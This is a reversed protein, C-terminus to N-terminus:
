VESFGAKIAQHLANMIVKAQRETPYLLRGDHWSKLVGRATDTIGPAMGSNYFALLKEPTKTGSLEMVKIQNNIGSDIREIREGINRKQRDEMQSVISDMVPPKALQNCIREMSTWCSPKKCFTGINTESAPPRLIRGHVVQAISSIYDVLLQELDQDQWIKDWNLTMNEDRLKKSLVSITYAISQARYGEYWLSASILKGVRKFLIVQSVTKQFLYENCDPDGEEYLNSVKEAFKAFCLQAGRAVEHPSLDWALSAKAISIKDFVQDLPHEVLFKKRDSNSMYMQDNLYEGKVREYFWKSSALAGRRAPVRLRQSIEKIRKHFYTNSFFDSTNVKNQTNAYESIKSVYATYNDKDHIVSLKIQVFVESLDFGDKKAKFITSMTQGGNVIQLNQISMIRGNEFKVHSATGSLGNNYAFFFMRESSRLTNYIGKNVNGRLSLFTRINSELLRKGYQNYYSVLDNGTISALYSTYYDTSIVRIGPLECEININQQNSDKAMNLYSQLDVLRAEVMLGNLTYLTEFSTRSSYLSNTLLWVVLSQYHGSSSRVDEVFELMANSDDLHRSNPIVRHNLTDVIKSFSDGVNNQYVKSVTAQSHYDTVFLNLVGREPDRSFASFHVGQIGFEIPTFDDVFQGSGQLYEIYIEFLSWVSQYHNVDNRLLIQNLLDEHLDELTM